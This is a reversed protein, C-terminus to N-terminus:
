RRRDPHRLKSGEHIRKIVDPPIVADSDRIGSLSTKVGALAAYLPPCTFCASLHGVLQSERAPSLDGNLYDSVLSRAQWCTLPVGNNAVKRVASQSLASVMMMRARRLRQKAAPLTIGLFSAIESLKWGEVDHLVLASRYAFPLRLLSDQIEEKNEFMEVVKEPDVSFTEDKWQDEVEAASVERATRRANDIALNHLIRHLWTKLGSAQRFSDSKEWARSLTDSVLWEARVPDGVLTLAYHYLAPIEATVASTFGGDATILLAESDNMRYCSYEM